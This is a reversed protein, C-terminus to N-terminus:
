QKILKMKKLGKLGVPFFLWGLFAGIADALADYVNGSRGIFVYYQLLETIFGYIVTLSVAWIIYKKRKEKGYQKRFGLLILFSQIGFIILHVIKDPSLWEWFSVIEPFVNGPLGILFM